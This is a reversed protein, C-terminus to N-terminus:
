KSFSKFSDVFEMAIDGKDPDTITVLQYQIQGIIICRYTVLTGNYDIEAGKGQHKKYDYDFKRKITGGMAEAFAELSTEALLVVDSGGMYEDHIVFNLMFIDTGNIAKVTYSMGYEERKSEEEYEAPFTIKVMGASSSYKYGKNVEPFVVAETTNSIAAQAVLLSSCIILSLLAKM